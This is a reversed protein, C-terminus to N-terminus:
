HEIIVEVSVLFYSRLLARFAPLADQFAAQTRSTLVLLTHARAEEVYGVAEFNGHEGGSFLRVLAPKGDRTTEPEAIEVRLAPGHERFTQIDRAILREVGEGDRRHVTNPYMVAVSERWSDGEPYLVAPLGQNRAAEADFVWGQPATLAYAHARESYLIVGPGEAITSDQAWARPLLAILLALGCARRFTM